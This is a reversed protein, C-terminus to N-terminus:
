PPSRGEWGGEVGSRPRPCDSGPWPLLSPRRHDDPDDFLTKRVFGPDGHDGSEYRLQCFGADFHNNLTTGSVGRTEQVIFVTRLARLHNGTPRLDKLLGVQDGLYPGESGIRLLALSVELEEAVTLRDDAHALRQGFMVGVLRHRVLARGKERHLHHGADGAGLAHIDQRRHSGDGAVLSDEECGVLQGLHETPAPTAPSWAM